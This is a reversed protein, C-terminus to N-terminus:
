IKLKLNETDKFINKFTRMLFYFNYSHQLTVLSPMTTM